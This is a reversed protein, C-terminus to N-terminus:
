HYQQHSFEFHFNLTFTLVNACRCCLYSLRTSGSNNYFYLFQLSLLSRTRSCCFALWLSFRYGFVCSEVSRYCSLSDSKSKGSQLSEKGSSKEKKEKPSESNTSLSYTRAVHFLKTNHTLFFLQSVKGVWVVFSVWGQFLFLIFFSFPMFNHNEIRIQVFSLSHFTLLYSHTHVARFAEFWVKRKRREKEATNVAGGNIIKLSIFIIGLLNKERRVKPMGERQQQQKKDTASTRNEEENGNEAHNETM